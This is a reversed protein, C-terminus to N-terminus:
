DFGSPEVESVVFPIAQRIARKISDPLSEDYPKGYNTIAYENWLQGYVERITNYVKLYQGYPTDRENSLAIIAHRPTDALDIKANPNIIFEKVVTGLEDLPLEKDRVLVRGAANVLIRLINRDKMEAGEEEEDVWAPLKIDLGKGEGSMSLNHLLGLFTFKVIPDGWDGPSFTALFQKGISPLSLDQLLGEKLGRIKLAVPSQENKDQFRCEWLCTKCEFVKALQLQVFSAETSLSEALAQYDEGETGKLLKAAVLRAQEQEMTEDLTDQEAAFSLKQCQWESSATPAQQCSYVLYFCCFLLPHYIRM